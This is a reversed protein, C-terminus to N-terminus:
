CEVEYKTLLVDLFGSDTLSLSLLVFQMGWGNKGAGAKQKRVSTVFM